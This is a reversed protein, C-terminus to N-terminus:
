SVFIYSPFSYIYRAFADSMLVKSDAAYAQMCTMLFGYNVMPDVVSVIRSPSVSDTLLFAGYSMIVLDPLRM